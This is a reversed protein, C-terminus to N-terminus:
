EIIRDARRLLQPSLRYNGALAARMNIVFEFNMPQSVPFDGAGGRRLVQAVANALRGFADERLASFQMLGGDEVFVQGEYIAPIALANIRAILSKRLSWTVATAAIILAQAPKNALQDLLAALDAPTSVSLDRLAIGQHRAYDRARASCGSDPMAADHIFGIQRASPVTAHMLEVLKDDLCRYTTIGTLNRGPRAYSDILGRALPDDHARFVLPVAHARRTAAVAQAADFDFCLILDPQQDNLKSALQTLREADFGAFAESFRVGAALQPDIKEFEVRFAAMAEPNSAPSSLCAVHRLPGAAVAPAGLCLAGVALFARRMPWPVGPNGPLDLM